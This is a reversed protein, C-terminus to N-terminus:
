QSCAGKVRAYEQPSDVGNQRENLERGRQNMFEGVYDTVRANM